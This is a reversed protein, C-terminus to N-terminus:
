LQDDSDTASPSLEPRSRGPSPSSKAHTHHTSQQGSTAQVPYNMYASLQQQQQQHNHHATHQLMSHQGPPSLDMSPHHFLQSAPLTIPIGGGGGGGSLSPYPHQNDRQQKRFKARRNKFWVEIRAEKLNIHAALQERLTVDPYQTQYFVAELEALQEESFITRHRRKRKAHQGILQCPFALHSRGPHSGPAGVPRVLSVPPAAQPLRLTSPRISHHRDDARAFRSEDDHTSRPTQHHHQLDQQQSDSTQDHHARMSAAQICRQYYETAASNALSTLFPNQAQNPHHHMQQQHSSAQAKYQEQQRQQMETAARIQALLM